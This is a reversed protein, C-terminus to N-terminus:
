MAKAKPIGIVWWFMNVHTFWQNMHQYSKWPGM